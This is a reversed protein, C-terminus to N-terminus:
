KSRSKNNHDERIYILLANLVICGSQDDNVQIDTPSILYKCYEEKFKNPIPNMHLRFGDNNPIFEANYEEPLSRIFGSFLFSVM